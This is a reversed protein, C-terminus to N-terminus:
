RFRRQAPVGGCVRRSGMWPPKLAADRSRVTQPPTGACRSPQSRHNRCLFSIVIAQFEIHFLTAVGSERCVGRVPRPLRPPHQPPGKLLTRLLSAASLGGHIPERRRKFPGGWCGAWRWVGFCSSVGM